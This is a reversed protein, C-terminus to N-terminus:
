SFAGQTVSRSPSLPSPSSHSVSHSPLPPLSPSLPVFCIFSSVHQIGVALQLTYLQSNKRNRENWNEVSWVVLCVHRIRKEACRYWVVWGGKWEEISDYVWIEM